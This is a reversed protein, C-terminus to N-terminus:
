AKVEPIYPILGLVCFGKEIGFQGGELKYTIRRQVENGTHTENVPDYEKLILVDGVAFGRDDYRVEFDKRGSQVDPFFKTWLKLTHTRASPLKIRLGALEAELKIHLDALKAGLESIRLRAWCKDPEGKEPPDQNSCYECECHDDEWSM